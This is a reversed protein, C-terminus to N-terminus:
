NIRHAHLRGRPSCYGDSAVVAEACVPAGAWRSLAHGRGRMFVDEGDELSGLEEPGSACASEEGAGGSIRGRGFWDAGESVCVGLRFGTNWCGISGSSHLDVNAARASRQVRLKQIGWRWMRIVKTSGVVRLFVWQGCNCPELCFLVWKRIEPGGCASRLRLGPFAPPSDLAEQPGPPVVSGGTRRVNMRTIAALGFPALALRACAPAGTRPQWIPAALREYHFAGENQRTVISNIIHHDNRHPAHARRILTKITTRLKKARIPAQAGGVSHYGTRRGHVTCRHDHASPLPDVASLGVSRTRTKSGSAKRRM